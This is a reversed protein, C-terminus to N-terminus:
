ARIARIIGWFLIGFSAVLLALMLTEAPGTGPQGKVGALRPNYNQASYGQIGGNMVNAQYAAQQSQTGQNKALVDYPSVTITHTNYRYVGAGVGAGFQNTNITGTTQGMQGTPTTGITGTGLANTAQAGTDSAAGHLGGGAQDSLMQMLDQIQQDSQKQKEKFDDLQKSLGLLLQANADLAGTQGTQDTAGAVTATGTGTTSTGTVATGTSTTTGTGVTTTTTTTTVPTGGETVAPTETQTDTLPEVQISVPESEAQVVNENKPDTAKTTDKTTSTGTATDAAGAPTTTPTTTDTKTGGFLGGAQEAANDPVIKFGGDFLQGKMLSAFQQPIFLLAVFVILAAFGISWFAKNQVRESADKKSTKAPIKLMPTGEDPITVWVTEKNQDTM